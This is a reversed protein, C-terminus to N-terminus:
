LPSICPGREHVAVHGMRIFPALDVPWNSEFDTPKPMGKEALIQPTLKIMAFQIGQRVPARSDPSLYKIFGDYFGPQLKIGEAIAVQDNLVEFRVKIPLASRM